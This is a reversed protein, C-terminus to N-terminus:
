SDHELVEIGIYKLKIMIYENKVMGKLLAHKRIRM